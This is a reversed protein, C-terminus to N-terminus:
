KVDFHLWCVDDGLDIAYWSLSYRYSNISGLRYNFSTFVSQDKSCRYLYARIYVVRRQWITCKYNCSVRMVSRHVEHFIRLLELNSYYWMLLLVWWCTVVTWFCHFICRIYASGPFFKYLKQSRWNQYM